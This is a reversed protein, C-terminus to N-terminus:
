LLFPFPKRYNTTRLHPCLEGQVNKKQNVFSNQNNGSTELGGYFPVNLVVDFGRPKRHCERSSFFDFV